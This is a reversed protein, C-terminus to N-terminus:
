DTKEVNGLDSRHGLLLHIAQKAAKFLDEKMGDWKKPLLAFRWVETYCRVRESWSLPARGIAKLYESFRRWRPLLIKSRMAPDFWAAIESDTINAALSRQPHGRRYFLYEPIEFFQGLLSLEGLLVRDSSAYNGILATRKLASARTLGFVPNCLGPARFFDRFREHPKPSRLNFGDFYHEVLEGQENIISTKPYCLVVNPERDLVEVCRQLHEPACLDDHAAWKFYEGSSLEFLQNFNKAAGLNNENRFYRIRDDKAAYRRCIQETRDTSANDSIILEFDAHTQALLSHLAEEIYEDGNFVPLGISVRPNSSDM